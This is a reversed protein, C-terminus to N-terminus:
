RDGKLEEVELVVVNQQLKYISEKVAGIDSVDGFVM